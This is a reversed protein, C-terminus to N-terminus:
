STPPGPSALNVGYDKKVREMAAKKAQEMAEPMLEERLRQTEQEKMKEASAMMEKYEESNRDIEPEECINIVHQMFFVNIVPKGFFLSEVLIAGQERDVAKLRGSYVTPFREPAVPIATQVTYITVIKNLLPTILDMFM